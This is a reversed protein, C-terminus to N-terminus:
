WTGAGVLEPDAGAINGSGTKSIWDEISDDTGMKMMQWNCDLQDVAQIFYRGDTWLRAEEQTIAAQGNSGSFGSVWLLRGVTDLPVILITINAEVMAARVLKLRETTNVRNPPITDNPGCNNNIERTNRDYSPIYDNQDFIACSQITALLLLFIWFRRLM